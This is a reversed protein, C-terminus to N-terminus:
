EVYVEGTVQDLHLRELDSGDGVSAAALGGTEMDQEVSVIGSVTGDALCNRARGWVNLFKFKADIYATGALTDAEVSQEDMLVLCVKRFRATDWYLLRGSYALERFLSLSARRSDGLFVLDLTVTTTECAVEGGGDSPHWLRAEGSEAYSETEVNKVKGVTELGECSRYRLGRFSAELDVAAGTGNGGADAKQMYFRYEAM